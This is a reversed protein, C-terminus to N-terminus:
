KRELVVNGTLEVNILFYDIEGFSLFLIFWSFSFFAVSMYVCGFFLSSSKGFFLLFLAPSKKGQGWAEAAGWRRACLAGEM